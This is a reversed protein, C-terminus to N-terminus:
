IIRQIKFLDCYRIDDIDKLIYFEKGNIRKLWLRAQAETIKLDHCIDCLTIVREEVCRCRIHQVDLCLLYKIIKKM